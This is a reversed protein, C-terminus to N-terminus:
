INRIAGALSIAGISSGKGPQYLASRRQDDGHIAADAANRVDHQCLLQACVADDDIVMFAALQRICRIQEVAFHRPLCIGKALKAARPRRKFHRLRKQACLRLLEDVEAADRRDAIHHAQSSLVPSQGIKPQLLEPLLRTQTKPSQRFRSPQPQRIYLRIANRKAENRADIRRPPQFMGAQRQLKQRRRISALRLFQCLM